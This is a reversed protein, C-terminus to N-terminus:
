NRGRVRNKLNDSKVEYVIRLIGGEEIKERIVSGGKVASGFENVIDVGTSKPDAAPGSVKVREIIFKEIVANQAGAIASDRTSGAAMVRFTDGDIWGLSIPPETKQPEVVTKQPEEPAQVTEEFSQCSFASFVLLFAFSLSLGQRM